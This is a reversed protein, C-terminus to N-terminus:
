KKSAVKELTRDEEVIQAEGDQQIMGIRAMIKTQLEDNVIVKDILGYRAGIHKTLEDKAFL